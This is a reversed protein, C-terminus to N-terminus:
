SVNIYRRANNGLTVTLSPQAGLYVLGPTIGIARRYATVVIYEYKYVICGVGRSFLLLEHSTYIM